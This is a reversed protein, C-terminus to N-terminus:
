YDWDGNGPEVPIDTETRFDRQIGYAIGASSLAYARVYYATAPNLGTLNSTFSGPGEGDMTKSDDITPMQLTSWCVGRTTVEAGGDSTVIGGGVATTQTIGSVDITTLTPIGPDKKCGYFSALSGALFTILLLNVLKKM